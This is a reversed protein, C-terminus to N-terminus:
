STQERATTGWRATFVDTVQMTSPLQAQVSQSDQTFNESDDKDAVMLGQATWPGNTSQGEYAAIKGIM